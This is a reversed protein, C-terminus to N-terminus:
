NIPVWPGIEPAESGQSTLIVDAVDTLFVQAVPTTYVNEEM